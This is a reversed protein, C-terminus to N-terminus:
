KCIEFRLPEVLKFTLYKDIERTFIGSLVSIEVNERWFERYKLQDSRSRHGERFSLRRDIGM